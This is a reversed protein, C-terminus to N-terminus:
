EFINVSKTMIGNTERRWQQKVLSWAATRDNSLTGEDIM